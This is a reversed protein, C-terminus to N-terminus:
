YYSVFDVTVYSKSDCVFSLGSMGYKYNNISIDMGSGLGLGSRSVGAQIFAIENNWLGIHPTRTQFKMNTSDSLYAKCNLFLTRDSIWGEGALLNSAVTTVQNAPLNIGGLSVSIRWVDKGNYKGVKTPTTYVMDVNTATPINDIRESLANDAAEREQIETSLAEADAKSGLANHLDEQNDISGSIEGWSVSDLGGVANLVGDETITLNNGVKIGGLTTATAVPVNSIVIDNIQRQLKADEEERAAQEEDIRANAEDILQKIQEIKTGDNLKTFIGDSSYIYVASNAEYEVLANTYAGNEPIYTGTKDDGFVAPIFVKKFMCCDNCKRRCNVKPCEKKEEFPHCIM